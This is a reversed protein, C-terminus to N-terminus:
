AGGKTVSYGLNKLYAESMQLVVEDSWVSKAQNALTCLLRVNSQVYGLTSDIRDISISFPGKNGTGNGAASPDLSLGSLSCLGDQKKWLELLFEKTLDFSRNTVKARDKASNLRAVLQGELTRYRSGTVIQHCGKCVPALGDPSSQRISFLQKDKELKCMTCIKSGTMDIDKRSESRKKAAAKMAENRCDSCRAERGGVGKGNATKYFLDLAKEKECTKCIKTEM